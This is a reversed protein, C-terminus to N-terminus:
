PARGHGVEVVRHLLKIFEIGAEYWRLVIPQLIDISVFTVAYELVSEFQGRPYSLDRLKFSTALPWELARLDGLRVGRM